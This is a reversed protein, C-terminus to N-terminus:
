CRNIQIFDILPPHHGSPWFIEGAHPHGRLFDSLPNTNHTVAAQINRNVASTLHYRGKFGKFGYRLPGHLHPM